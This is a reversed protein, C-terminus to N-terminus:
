LNKQRIVVLCIINLSKISASEMKLITSPCSLQVSVIPSPLHSESFLLESQPYSPPSQQRHVHMELGSPHVVFENTSQISGSISLM